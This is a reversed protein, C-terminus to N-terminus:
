GCDFVACSASGYLRLLVWDVSDKKMRLILRRENRSLRRDDIVALMKLWAKM